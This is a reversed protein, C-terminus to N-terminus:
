KSKILVNNLKPCVVGKYLVPNATISRNPLIDLNTNILVHHIMGVGGIWLRDYWLRFFM